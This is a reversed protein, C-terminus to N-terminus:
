EGIGTAWYCALWYRGRETDFPHSCAFNPTQGLRFARQADLRIATKDYDTMTRRLYARMAETITM